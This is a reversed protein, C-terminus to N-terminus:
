QWDLFYFLFSLYIILTLGLYAIIICTLNCPFSDTMRPFHDVNDLLVSLIDELIELHPM